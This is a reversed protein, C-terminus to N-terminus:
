KRVKSYVLLMDRHRWSTDPSGYGSRTPPTNAIDPPIGIVVTAGSGLKIIVRANFESIPTCVKIGELNMAPNIGAHKTSFNTNQCPSSSSITPYSFIVLLSSPLPPPPSAVEVSITPLSVCDDVRNFILNFLCLPTSLLPNQLVAAPAKTCRIDTTSESSSLSFTSVLRGTSVSNFMTVAGAPESKFCIPMSKDLNSLRDWTNTHLSHSTNFTFCGHVTSKISNGRTFREKRALRTSRISPVTSCRRYLLSLSPNYMAVEM